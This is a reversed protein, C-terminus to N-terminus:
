SAVVWYLVEAAVIEAWYLVGAAVIEAMLILPLGAMFKVHRTKHRILLMTIYMVVCGSLTGVLLLDREPIRRRHRRAAQKDYVTLCVALVNIVVAYFILIISQLQQM